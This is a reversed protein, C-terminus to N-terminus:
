CVISWGDATSNLAFTYFGATIFDLIASDENTEWTHTSWKMDTTGGTYDNYTYYKPDTYDKGATGAYVDYGVEGGGVAGLATTIEGAVLNGYGASNLDSEPLVVTNPAETEGPKEESANCGALIPLVMVIALLLALLKKM